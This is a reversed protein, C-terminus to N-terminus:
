KFKQGFICFFLVGAWEVKEFVGGLGFLCRKM